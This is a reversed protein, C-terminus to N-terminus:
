YIKINLEENIAAIVARIERTTIATESPVRLLMELYRLLAIVKENPSM